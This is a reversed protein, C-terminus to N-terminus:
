TDDEASQAHSAPVQSAPPPRVPLFSSPLDTDLSFIVKEANPREEMILIVRKLASNGFCRGFFYKTALRVDTPISIVIPQHLIFSGENGNRNSMM